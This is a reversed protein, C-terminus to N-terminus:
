GGQPGVGGLFTPQRITTRNGTSTNWSWASAAGLSQNPTKVRCFQLRGGSRGPHGNCWRVREDWRGGAGRDSGTCNYTSYLKGKTDAGSRKRRGHCLEPNIYEDCVSARDNSTGITDMGAPSLQHESTVASTSGRARRPGVQRCWGRPGRRSLSCWFLYFRIEHSLGRNKLLLVFRRSARVAPQHM